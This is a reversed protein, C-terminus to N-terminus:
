CQEALSSSRSIRYKLEYSNIIIITSTSRNSRHIVANFSGEGTDSYISM